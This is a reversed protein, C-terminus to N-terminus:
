LGVSTEIESFAVGSDVLLSSSCIYECLSSVRLRSCREGHDSPFLEATSRLEETPHVERWRLGFGFSVGLSFLFFGLVFSRQRKPVGASKASGRLPSPIGTFLKQPLRQSKRNKSPQVERPSTIIHRFVSSSASLSDNRASTASQSQGQSKM